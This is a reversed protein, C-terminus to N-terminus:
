VVFTIIEGNDSNLKLDHNFEAKLNQVGVEPTNFVKKGQTIRLTLETSADKLPNKLELYLLKLPIIVSESM